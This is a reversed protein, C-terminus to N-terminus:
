FHLGPSTSPWRQRNLSPRVTLGVCPFLLALLSPIILCATCTPELITGLSGWRRCKMGEHITEEWMSDSSNQTDLLIHCFHHHKVELGVDYFANCNRGQDKPDSVRSSALQWATFVSLWGQLSAQPSFTGTKCGTGIQFSHLPAVNSTSICGWGTDSRCGWSLGWILWSLQEQFKIRILTYNVYFM